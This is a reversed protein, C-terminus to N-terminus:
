VHGAVKEYYYSGVVTAGGTDPKFSAVSHVYNEALDTSWTVTYVGATTALISGMSAHDGGANPALSIRDIHDTGTVTIPNDAKSYLMDVIFANAAVTTIATSPQSVLSQSTANADNPTTQDVGTMSLACAVWTGVSGTLTVVVNNAGTTPSKRSWLETSIDADDFADARILTLAAAAYTISVVPRNADTADRAGTGVVLNTLSGTITHSWTASSAAAKVGSNSTTDFAIAM